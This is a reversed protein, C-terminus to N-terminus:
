APAGAAAKDGSLERLRERLAEDVRWGAFGCDNTGWPTQGGAAWRVVLWHAGYEKRVSVDTLVHHIAAGGGENVLMTNVSEGVRFGAAEALPLIDTASDYRSVIQQQAM